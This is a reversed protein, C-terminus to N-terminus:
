FTEDTKAIYFSAIGSLSNFNLEHYEVVFSKFVSLKHLLNIAMKTLTLTSASLLESVM